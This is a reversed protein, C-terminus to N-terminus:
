EDDFAQVFLMVAFIVTLIIPAVWLGRHESRGFIGAVWWASTIASTILSVAFATWGEKNKDSM